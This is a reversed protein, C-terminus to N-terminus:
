LIRAAPSVCHVNAGLQMSAMFDRVLEDLSGSSKAKGGRQAIPKVEPKRYLGRFESYADDGHVLAALDQPHWKLRPAEIFDLWCHTYLLEHEDLWLRLRREWLRREALTRPQDAYLADTTSMHNSQCLEWEVAGGANAVLWREYPETPNTEPLVNAGDGVDVLAAAHGCTLLAIFHGVEHAIKHLDM